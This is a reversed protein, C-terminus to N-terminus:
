EGRAEWEELRSTEARTLERAGVIWWDWEDKRRLAVMLPRGTHTRGWITVVEVGGLGVARRPWRSRASLVHTVEHSEIGQLKDLVVTIWEFGVPWTYTRIVDAAM